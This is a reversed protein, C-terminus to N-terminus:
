SNRINTDSVEIFKVIENTSKMVEEYQSPFNFSLMDFATIYEKRLANGQTLENDDTVSKSIILPYRQSFHTLIISGAKMSLGVNLAESITCHKKKNADEQMSDDFTAEHILLDCGLGIRILNQNPRCDGSYVIKQHDFLEMVLAYADPCHYAGVSILHIVRGDTATSVQAKSGAFQTSSIALFECIDELGTIISIFEFYKICIPSCIVLIKNFKLEKLLDITQLYSRAREIEQLIMPFGSIHDAHHHSIWILRIQSICECFKDYNGSCFQYIQCCTGEGVDLLINVSKSLQLLIGSNNRHKSPKASGTGLLTVRVDEKYNLQSLNSEPKRKLLRERLQSAAAFNESKLSTLDKQLNTSAIHSTSISSLEELRSQILKLWKNQKLNIIDFSTLSIRLCPLALVLKSNDRYYQHISMIEEQNLINFVM